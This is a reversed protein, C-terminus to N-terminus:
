IYIYIYILVQVGYVSFLFVSLDNLTMSKTVYMEYIDSLEWTHPNWQRMMILLDDEGVTEEENLIQLALQKGEYVNYYDLSKEDHYVRTLKDTTKERIRLLKGKYKSKKNSFENLKDAIQEKIISIKKRTDLAFEELLVLM